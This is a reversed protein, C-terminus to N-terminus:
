IEAHLKRFSPIRYKWVQDKAVVPTSLAKEVSWGHYKIRKHIVTLPLKLKRSWQSLTLTEGNYELLLNKRTNNAQERRTSWKCNKKCYDKDNDVRDLTTNKHGFDEIHKLYDEYMDDRFNIFSEWRKDVKIGRGGYNHFNKAKPNNCRQRMSKWIWHIKTDTMGHTIKLSNDWAM